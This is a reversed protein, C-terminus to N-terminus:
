SSASKIQLAHVNFGTLYALDLLIHKYGHIHMNRKKNYHYCQDDSAVAQVQVDADFGANALHRLQCKQPM